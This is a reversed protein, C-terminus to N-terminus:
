SDDGTATVRPAVFVLPAPDSASFFPTTRQCPRPLEPFGPYRRPDNHLKHVMPSVECKAGRLRAKEGHPLLIPHPACRAVSVDFFMDGYERGSCEAPSGYWNYYRVLGLSSVIAASSIIILSTQSRYPSPNGAGRAHRISFDHLGRLFDRWGDSLIAPPKEVSLPLEDFPSAFVTANEEGNKAAYRDHTLGARM